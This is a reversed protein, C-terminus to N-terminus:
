RSATAGSAEEPHLLERQIARWTLQRLHWRQDASRLGHRSRPYVMLEFSTDANQQLAHIMQMANSLHVNDDMTGHVIVLHGHLEGAAEVCSSRRYGEPNEKPTAMYRETYITDYNRWDYVGAGAVGLRFAKSHTLAYAAMFGGYSWGTIGVRDLDAGRNEGLWQVADVLDSLESAGLDRACAASDLQGRGSSSRNNVKLVLMGQQALFQDFANTQWRNRVTPSDPGSYTSLWVPYKRNPDYAPPTILMADMRYGDSAPISLSEPVRYGYAQTDRPEATALIEVRTGDGNCLRVQTPVTFSSYRDIFHEGDHSLSVRHTGDGHTLRRLGAGDLGIRYTHSNVVGDRTGT